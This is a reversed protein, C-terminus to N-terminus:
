RHSLAGGRLAGLADALTAFIAIERDLQTLRLVRLPQDRAIVAFRPPVSEGIRLRLKVLLPLVSCDIFGCDTFDILLPSSGRGMAREVREELDGITALDLEGSVRVAVVPDITGEDVIETRTASREM